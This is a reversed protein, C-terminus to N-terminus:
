VCVCVCVRVCVCVCVCVCVYVCRDVVAYAAPSDIIALANMAAYTPALHAIQTHTHM